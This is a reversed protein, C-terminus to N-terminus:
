EAALEREILSIFTRAAISLKRGAPVLVDYSGTGLVDDKLPRDILGRSQHEAALPFHCGIVVGDSLLAFQYMLESSNTELAPQVSINGNRCAQDFLVRGGLPSPAVSVPWKALKEISVEPLNGLPHDARMIASLRERRTLVIETEPSPAACFVLGIDAEGQRIKSAVVDSNAMTMSFTIGPHCRRFEAVVRSVVKSILAEITFITLHGRRMGALAAIESRAADISHEIDGVINYLIQGAETLKVGKTSREFLEAGLEAELSQIQRSMASQNILIDDAAARFSGRKAIAVFYRVATKLM